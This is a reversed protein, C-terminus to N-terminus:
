VVEKVGETVGSITRRIYDSQGSAEKKIDSEWFRLVTYGTKTLYADQSRDLKQRRLQREDPNAFRPHCHWYDGDWQIVLRSTPVYADVTFKKCLLTQEEFEVGIFRLIEAGMREISTPEKMKQLKLNADVAIEHLREKDKYRCEPSCYTPNNQKVRSPSWKFEKGCTKCTFTLKNRGQYANACEASCFQPTGERLLSRPKYVEKGCNVCKIFAGSRRGTAACERSCYQQEGCQNKTPHFSKGCVPCVRESVRSAIGKCKM